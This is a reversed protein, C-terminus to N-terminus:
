VTNEISSHNVVIIDFFHKIDVKFVEGARASRLFFWQACRVAAGTFLGVCCVLAAIRAGARELLWTAPLSSALFCIEGWNGLLGIDSARWDPYAFYMSQAVTGWSMWIAAQVMGILGTVM